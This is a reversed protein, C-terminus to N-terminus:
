FVNQQLFDRAAPNFMAGLRGGPSFGDEEAVDSWYRHELTAIQLSACSEVPAMYLAKAQASSFVRGIKEQGYNALALYITGIAGHVAHGTTEEPYGRTAYYAGLRSELDPVLEGDDIRRLTELLNPNTTDVLDQTDALAGGFGGRGDGYRGNVLGLHETPLVCETSTEGIGFILPVTAEIPAINTNRKVNSLISTSKVAGAIVEDLLKKAAIVREPDRSGLDVSIRALTGPRDSEITDVFGDAVDAIKAKSGSRAEGQRGALPAGLVGRALEAGNRTSVLNAGAGEVPEEEGAACGVVAALLALAVCRITM